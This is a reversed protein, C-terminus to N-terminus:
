VPNEFATDLNSSFEINLNNVDRIYIAYWGLLRGFMTCVKTTRRHAVDSCYCLWSAFGTSIQQPAGFEHRLKSAIARCLQAITRM